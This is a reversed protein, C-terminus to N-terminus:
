LNKKRAERPVKRIYSQLVGCLCKNSLVLVVVSVSDTIHEDM